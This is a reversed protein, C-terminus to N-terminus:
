KNCALPASERSIKEGLQYYNTYGTIFNHCQMYIYINKNMTFCCNIFGTCIWEKTEPSFEHKEIVMISDMTLCAALVSCQWLSFQYRDVRIHKYRDANVQYRYLYRLYSICNDSMGLPSSANSVSLIM